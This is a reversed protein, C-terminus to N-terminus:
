SAYNARRRLFDALTTDATPAALAPTAQMTPTQSQSMVVPATMSPTPRAGTAADESAPTWGEPMAAPATPLDVGYYQHAINAAIERMPARRAQEADWAARNSAEERALRAQEDAYQREQFSLAEGAATRQADTARNAARSSAVASAATGAAAAAGAILIATSTAIM